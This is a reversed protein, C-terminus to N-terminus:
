AKSNMWRNILDRFIQYSASRLYISLVLVKVINMVFFLAFALGYRLTIKHEEDHVGEETLHEEFSFFNKSEAAIVEM